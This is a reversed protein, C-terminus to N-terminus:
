GATIERAVRTPNSDAPVTAPCLPEPARWTEEWVPYPLPTLKPRPPPGLRLTDSLRDPPVIANSDVLSGTVPRSVPTEWIQSEVMSGVVLWGIVAPQPGLRLGETLSSPRKTTNSLSASRAM